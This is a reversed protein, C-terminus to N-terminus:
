RKNIQLLIRETENNVEIQLLDQLSSIKAIYDPLENEIISNKLISDCLDILLNKM